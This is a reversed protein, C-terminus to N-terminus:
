VTRILDDDVVGPYKAQAAFCRALFDRKEGTEACDNKENLRKREELCKLCFEVIPHTPALRAALGILTKGVVRAQVMVISTWVKQKVDAIIGQVDKGSELFGLKRSFCIEGLVDFAYAQLWWPLDFGRGSEAFGDLCKELLKTTTDVKDEFEVLTSMSYANGFPKKIRSHYAEDSTNFLSPVFQGNCPTRFIHVLDSKKLLPEFGYIKPVLSSDSISIKKPGIRIFKSKHKKHGDLLRIHTEGRLVDVLLYIDSLSALFSGPISTLGTLYRNRLLCLVWFSLLLLAYHQGLLQMMSDPFAM